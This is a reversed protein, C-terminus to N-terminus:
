DNREGQRNGARTHAGAPSDRDQEVFLAAPALADPSQRDLEEAIATLLANPDVAVPAHHAAVAPPAAVRSPIGVFGIAAALLLATALAWQWGATRRARAAALIRSRQRRWEADTREASQAVAAGFNRLLARSHEVREACKPCERIHATGEADGCILRAIEKNDLHGAIM